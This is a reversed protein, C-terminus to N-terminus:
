PWVTRTEFFAPMMLASGDGSAYSADIASSARSDRVSKSVFPLSKSFATTGTVGPPFQAEAGNGKVAGLVPRGMPGAREMDQRRGKVGGGPELRGCLQSVALGRVLEATLATRLAARAKM